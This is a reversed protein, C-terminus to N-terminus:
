MDRYFKNRYTHEDTVNVTAYGTDISVTMERNEIKIRKIPRRGKDKKLSGVVEM